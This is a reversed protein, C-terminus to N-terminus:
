KPRAQTKIFRLFLIHDIQHNKAHADLLKAKENKNFIPKSPMTLQPLAKPRQKLLILDRESDWRLKGSLYNPILPISLKLVYV